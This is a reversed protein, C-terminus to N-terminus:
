LHALNSSQIMLHMSLKTLFQWVTKWLESYRKVYGGATHSNGLKEAEEGANPM